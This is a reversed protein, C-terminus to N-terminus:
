EQSLNKFIKSLLDLKILSVDRCVEGGKPCRLVNEGGGGWIASIEETPSTHIKEPIVWKCTLLIIFYEYM